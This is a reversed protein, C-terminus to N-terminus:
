NKVPLQNNANKSLAKKVFLEMDHTDYKLTLIFFACLVSVILLAAITALIDGSAIASILFALPLLIFFLWIITSGIHPIVTIQITINKNGKVFKGYGIPRSQRRQNTKRARLKFTNGKIECVYTKETAHKIDFEETNWSDDQPHSHSKLLNLITKVDFPAKIKIM